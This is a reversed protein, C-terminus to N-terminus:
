KNKGARSPRELHLELFEFTQSMIQRHQHRSKEDSLDDFFAHGHEQIIHLQHALGHQTTSQLLEARLQKIIKPPIYQEYAGYFACIPVHANKFHGLYRQPFGGYSVVAEIEPMTIASEFAFSGGMGIGVAAVSRNCRHHNELVNLADKVVDFAKEQYNQVLEIALQATNATQGDFLDPVIVYYGMEAFRDAIRRIVSTLGWWDHVLVIGPFKQGLRPYAWYAPLRRGTPLVVEIYGVEIDYEVHKLDFSSM